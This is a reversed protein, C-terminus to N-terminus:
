VVYTECLSQLTTMQTLIENTTRKSSSQFDAEFQVGASPQRITSATQASMPALNMSSSSSHRSVSKRSFAPDAFHDSPLQTGLSKSLHSGALVSTGGSQLSTQSASKSPPTNMPSSSKERSSGTRQAAPYNHQINAQGRQQQLIDSSPPKNIHAAKTSGAAGMVPSHKAQNGLTRNIMGRDEFKGVDNPNM